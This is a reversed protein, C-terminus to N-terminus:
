ARVETAGAFSKFRENFVKVREEEMMKQLKRTQRVAEEREEQLTMVEIQAMNMRSVVEQMESDAAMLAGELQAVRAKLTTVDEAMNGEAAASSLIGSARPRLYTSAHSNSYFSSSSSLLFPSSMRTTRPTADSKSALSMSFMPSLPSKPPFSRPPLGRMAAASGAPGDRLRLLHISHSEKLTQLEEEHRNVREEANTQATIVQEELERLRKQLSAIRETSVRQNAEGRAVTDALRSRLAANIALQARVQQALEEVRRASDSLQEALTLEADIHQKESERLSELEALQAVNDERAMDRETVVTSLSQELHAIALQMAENSATSDELDKIRVLAESYTAQLDAYAKELSASSVPVLADNDSYNSMYSSRAFGEPILIDRERLLSRLSTIEQEARDLNMKLGGLGKEVEWKQDIAEEARRRLVAIEDRLNAVEKEYGGRPSSSLLRDREQELLKIRKANERNQIEQRELLSRLARHLADRQAEVDKLRDALIEGRPEAAAAVVHHKTTNSRALSMPRGARKISSTNTGAVSTSRSLVMSMRTGTEKLENNESKLTRLEQELKRLETNEFRLAELEQQLDDIEASESRLSQLENQQSSLQANASKLLQVEEHLKSCESHELKIAHLEEQLRVVDSDGSKLAQLEEQLRDCGTHEARFQEFEDRLRAFETNGLKGCEAHESQLHDYEDRYKGLEANEAKLLDVEEQIKGLEENETKLSQVEQELRTADYALKDRENSTNELKGKIDGLLDELSERTQREESLKRRLDDCTAELEKIRDSTEENQIKAVDIMSARKSLEQIQEDLARRRIREDQLKTTLELRIQAREQEAKRKLVTIEEKAQDYDSFKSSSHGSDSFYDSTRRGSENPNGNNVQEQLKDVLDELDMERRISAALEAGIAKLEDEMEDIQYQSTESPPPTQLYDECYELPRETKANTHSPTRLLRPSEDALTRLTSRRVSHPSPSPIPSIDEKDESFETTSSQPTTAWNGYFNADLQSSAPSKPLPRNLNNNEGPTSVLPFARQRHDSDEAPALNLHPPPSKRSSLSMTNPKVIPNRRDHTEQLHTNITATANTYPAAVEDNYYTDLNHDLSRTTVGLSDASIHRDPSVSLPGGTQASSIIPSEKLTQTPQLNGTNSICPGQLQVSRDSVTSSSRQNNSSYDPDAPLDSAHAAASSRSPHLPPGFKAPFEYLTPSDLSCSRSFRSEPRPLDRIIDLYNRGPSSFRTALPSASSSLPKRKIPAPTYALSQSRGKSPSPTPRQDPITPLPPFQHDTELQDLTEETEDSTSPGLGHPPLLSPLQPYEKSFRPPTRASSVAPAAGVPEVVASRAPPPSFKLLTTVEPLAARNTDLQPHHHQEQHHHHHQQQQQYQQEQHYHLPLAPGFDFGREDPSSPVFTAM